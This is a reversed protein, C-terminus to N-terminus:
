SNDRTEGSDPTVDNPVNTHRVPPWAGEIEFANSSTLDMPYVGFPDFVRVEAHM